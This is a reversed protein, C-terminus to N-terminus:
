SRKVVKNPSQFVLSLREQKQSDGLQCLHPLLGHRCGTGLCRFRHGLEPESVPKELHGSSRGPILKWCVGFRIDVIFWFQEIFIKTQLRDLKKKFLRCLFQNTFNLGPRCLQYRLVLHPLFRELVLDLLEVYQGIM